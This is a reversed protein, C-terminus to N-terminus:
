KAYYERVSFVLNFLAAEGVLVYIVVFRVYWRIETIYIKTEVVIMVLMCCWAVAEVTLTLMQPFLFPRYFTIVIM